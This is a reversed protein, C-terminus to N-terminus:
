CGDGCYQWEHKRYVNRKRIFILGPLPLKGPKGLIL